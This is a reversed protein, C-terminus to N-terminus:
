VSIVNFLDWVIATESRFDSGKAVGIAFRERKREEGELGIAVDVRRVWRCV